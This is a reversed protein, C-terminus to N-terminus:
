FDFLSFQGKKNPTKNETEDSEKLEKEKLKNENGSFVIEPIEKVPIPTEEAIEEKIGNYKEPGADFFKGDDAIKDAKENANIKTNANTKASENTKTSESIKKENTSLSSVNNKTTKNESTKAPAPKSAFDFLGTQQYGEIMNEDVGLVELIRVVPPLIQKNIYYDVDLPLNNEIVYKPDEARDAFLGKGAVIVFPVRTGIPTEVGTRKQIKEVVSTHPQKNKYNSSKKSYNKTLILLDMMEPNENFDINKLDNIVKRVYKVAADVDGEILVLELIRNQTDSTLECWDRRVTEMGKVKIQDRWKGEGAIEFLWMAYRKKAILVIRRAYAEFELEMPRPLKSNIISALKNGVLTIMESTLVNEKFERGEDPTCHVFVSDTDGYIVTPRILIVDREFPNKGHEVLEEETWAKGDYVFTLRITKEIVDKTNIINLRGIATVSNALDMSYLRARAYGSYGYYSNLLIKLALQTADLALLEHEDKESRMMKKTESRKNLLGELIDPLIGRYKTNKVFRGGSPTKYVDEEKLGLSKLDADPSVVSTYCLNYAMMITPYLSKYDLMIVNEHMGRIPELVEGGKLGEDDSDREDYEEDDPKIPMVRNRVNFEKTMLQEVMSTQGGSLVEQIVSNSIRALAIYKDLLKLELLLDLALESDKESYSIFKLLKEGNDNWHEEMESAPLDIKESSLLEKSVNKLTYQKLSYNRRVLPLADAIIRGTLEAKVTIGFKRISIRSGDRSISTKINIGQRRLAEVRDILYPFDFDSINYGTIIDPDYENITEFIKELLEQEDSLWLVNDDVNQVTKPKLKGVLVMKKKGKFEPEFSFSTLIVPSKAPDPMNVGDPLCEIDFALQKLPANSIRDIKKVEKTCITIDCSNPFNKMINEKDLSPDDEASVWLFGGLDNDILYRNRFLIDSEYIQYIGHTNLVDNRIEPVNSPSYVTIKFMDKPEIQYGVPEFRKVTEIKKIQAFQEKLNREVEEISVGDKPQAYFYPEFGIVLCCVSERNENRGFLRIVPENENYNKYDVDLIQFNMTRVFIVNCYECQLM